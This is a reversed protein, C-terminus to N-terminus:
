SPRPPSSEGHIQSLIEVALRLSQLDKEADKVQSPNAGNSATRLLHRIELKLPNDKHVFIREIFAEQRYRLQEQTLTHESAARRHVHIDQEAYDLFIYTDRQTVALTRVKDQTTRSAALHAVCHNEFTLSVSAIDEQDSHVSAGVAYCSKVPSNVLSLVIDLDHIMLDLIVGDEQVRSQFPGMRRCEILLPDRVFKHLEQVAGNFRVVHGIQLIRGNERAIRFLDEAQELSSAIPKEVLVDTGAELFDRAVPYHQATPVAISVADVRGLIERYDRLARTDYQDAIARSRADDVDAVAVLETEPLEHYVGAHYRGMHGVGVVGVRTMKSSPNKKM